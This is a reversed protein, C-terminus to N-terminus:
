IKLLNFQILNTNYKVELSLTVRQFYAVSNTWGQPVRTQRLLGLEALFAMYDRSAVDLSLQNYGSYSDIASTIPYGAFDESFEDVAPPM